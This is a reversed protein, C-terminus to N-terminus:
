GCSKEGCSKEGCSKEGGAKEGCSKEGCSKEGCGKEGCSKEGADAPADADNSSCATTAFMLGGAALAALTTARLAGFVKSKEM